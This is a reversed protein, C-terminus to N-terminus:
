AMMVMGALGLKEAQAADRVALLAAQRAGRSTEDRGGYQLEDLIYDCYLLRDCYDARLDDPTELMLWLCCRYSALKVYAQNAWSELAQEFARERAHEAAAQQQEPIIRGPMDVPLGFRQAIDRAAEIPRVNLLRSVFTIADGHAGCVFCHYGDAYVVLSPHHDDHFPCPTTSRKGGAPRLKVYHQLVDPTPIEKVQRFISRHRPLRAMSM